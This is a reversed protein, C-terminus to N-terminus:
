KFEKEENISKALDSFRKQWKMGLLGICKFVIQLVYAM